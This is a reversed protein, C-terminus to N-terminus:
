DIPATLYVETTFLELRQRNPDQNPSANRYPNAASMWADMCQCIVGDDYEALLQNAIYV